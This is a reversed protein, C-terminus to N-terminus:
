ALSLSILRYYPMLTLYGASAANDSDEDMKDEEM